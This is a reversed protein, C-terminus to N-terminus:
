ICVLNTIDEEKISKYKKYDDSYYVQIIKVLFTDYTKSLEDKITTVLLEIRDKQSVVIFKGNNKVKDPNYRIIIVPKGGIGNVIENIRACECSDEYTNHQNEDIEVIVCHTALEYYIDPRKKSCDQLMKSSDYIFKTKISKKLHRVIAWEKKNKVQKCRDCIYTSEELIDCYKCLRKIYNFDNQEPYHQSCYKINEFKFEYENDCELVNCKNELILNLMNPKKHEQCFQPKKNKFGFVPDNKCKNQQCRKTRINIMNELKHESCYIPKTESPLNYHPRTTCGNHICRKHTVDVMNELKHESCYMPKTESPLNYTPRTMCGDRICRKSKIDIMNELKHESCYMPKTESPLNYIPRAM